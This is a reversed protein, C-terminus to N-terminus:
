GRNSVDERERRQYRRYWELVESQPMSWPTMEGTADMQGPLKAIVDFKFTQYMRPVVACGDECDMCNVVANTWDGNELECEAEGISMPRGTAPDYVIRGDGDCTHCRADDGLAHMLLCRALEAPGSGGYGWGYGTPSHKVHHPLPTETFARIVTVSGDTHGSYWTALLQEETANTTVPM